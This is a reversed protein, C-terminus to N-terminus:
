KQVFFPNPNLRAPEITPPDNAFRKEKKLLNGMKIDPIIDKKTKRKTM